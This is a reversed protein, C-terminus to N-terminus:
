GRFQVVEFEADAEGLIELSCLGWSEPIQYQAGEQFAFFQYKNRCRLRFESLRNGLNDIHLGPKFLMARWYGNADTKGKVVYMSDDQQVQKLQEITAEFRATDM